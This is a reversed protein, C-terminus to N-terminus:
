RFLKGYWPTKATQVDPLPASPQRGPTVPSQSGNGETSTPGNQAFAEAPLTTEMEPEEEGFFKRVRPFWPKAATQPAPQAEPLSPRAAPASATKPPSPRDAPKDSDFWQNVLSDRPAADNRPAADDSIVVAGGVSPAAVNSKPPTM